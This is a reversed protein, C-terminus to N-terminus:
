HILSFPLLLILCRQNTYISFINEPNIECKM